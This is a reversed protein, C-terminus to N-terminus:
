GGSVPLFLSLEDNEKLLTAPERCEGNVQAVVFLHFREEIHFRVLLDRISSGDPVEITDGSEIGEVFPTCTFIIRIKM